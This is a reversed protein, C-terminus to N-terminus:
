DCSVVSISQKTVGISQKTPPHMPRMREPVGPFAMVAGKSPCSLEVKEQWPPAVHWSVDTTVAAAEEKKERSFM